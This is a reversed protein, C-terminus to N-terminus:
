VGHKQALVQGRAGATGHGGVLTISGAILGILTDLGMAKALGVGVADQLLIFGSIVVLFIILGVGGAKLKAFNASLGISAFFILMFATQLDAHFNISYGLIYHLTFLAIAAVIGGAVPEPINFDKLFRIRQVLFRGILLVIM